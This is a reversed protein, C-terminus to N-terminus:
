LSSQVFLFEGHTFLVSLILSSCLITTVLTGTCVLTVHDKLGVPIQLELEQNVNRAISWYEPSKLIASIKGDAEAPQHYRCHLPLIA